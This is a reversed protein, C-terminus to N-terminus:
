LQIMSRDATEMEEEIMVYRRDKQDDAKEQIKLTKM